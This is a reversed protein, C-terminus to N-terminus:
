ERHGYRGPRRRHDRPTGHRSGRETTHASSENQIWPRARTVRMDLATSEFTHLLREMAFCDDAPEIRALTRASNISSILTTARRWSAVSPALRDSRATALSMPM